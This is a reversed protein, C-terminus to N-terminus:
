PVGGTASRPRVVRRVFRLLYDHANEELQGHDLGPLEHLEVDAHGSVRLMRQFYANEEYRGLLERERDGTVLLLPPADGRVHFLPALEDVVPQTGAGGREARVAFHTIVQGSLLGLGAIRNAEVGHAALWRRDLGILGVLYAGASAGAVVIRDPAGGYSAIHQFVWAVAAAADEIYEPARARPSLRYGVAAVALGQNMLQAPVYKEGSTLGGGHFWVVTPFGSVHAPYYLDLRCREREYGTLGAGTRYPIEDVRAYTSGVDARSSGDPRQETHATQM